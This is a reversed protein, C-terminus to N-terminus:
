ASLKNLQEKYYNSTQVGKSSDIIVKGNYIKVTPVSNIGLEQVFSMDSDINFKCFKVNPYEKELNELVPLLAKCPGCWEAYFDVLFKEGTLELNELTKRDITVM